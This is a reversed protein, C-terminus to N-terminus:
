DGFALPWYGLEVGGTTEVRREGLGIGFTAPLRARAADGLLVERRKAVDEGLKYATNVADGFLDDDLRIVRGHDIGICFWARADEDPEAANLADLAARIEAAAQVAPGVDDFVNLMNDAESKVVTGGHREVIPRALERGKVFMALFHVLGRERTIRTFGSMDTAMIALERGTERWIAGDIEAAADPTANRERLRSEFWARDRTM